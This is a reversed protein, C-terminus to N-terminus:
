GRCVALLRGRRAGNHIAWGEEFPVPKVRGSVQVLATAPIVESGFGTRSCDHRESLRSVRRQLRDVPPSDASETTPAGGLRWVALHEHGGSAGGSWLGPGVAVGVAAAGLGLGALCGAVTRAMARGVTSVLTDQSAM